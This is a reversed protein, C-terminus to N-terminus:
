VADAVAGRQHLRRARRPASRGPVSRYVLVIDAQDGIEAMAKKVAVNAAEFTTDGIGQKGGDWIPIDPTCVGIIALRVGGREVITWGNGTVYHGDADLVNAGLM